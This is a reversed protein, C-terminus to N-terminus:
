FPLQSLCNEERKNRSVKGIKELTKTTRVSVNSLLTILFNKYFILLKYIALAYNFGKKMNICWYLFIHVWSKHPVCSNKTDEEIYKKDEKYIKLISKKRHLSIEYKM